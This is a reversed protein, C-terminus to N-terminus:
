SNLGLWMWVLDNYEVWILDSVDLQAERCLEPLQARFAEYRDAIIRGGPVPDPSQSRLWDRVLRIARAPEERHERIDQGSLDSIFARYRYRERDLILSSGSRVEM